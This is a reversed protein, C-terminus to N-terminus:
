VRGSLFREVFANLHSPILNGSDVAKSPGHGKILLYELAHDPYIMISFETDSLRWKVQIGGESTAIVKPSPLESSGIQHVMHALESMVEPHPRHPGFQAYNPVLELNKLQKEFHDRWPPSKRTYGIGM